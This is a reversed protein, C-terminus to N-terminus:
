YRPTCNGEGYFLIGPDNLSSFLGGLHALGAQSGWRTVLVSCQTGHGAIGQAGGPIPVATGGQAAGQLEQTNKRHIFEEQDRIWVEQPQTLAM